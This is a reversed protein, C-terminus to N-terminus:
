FNQFCGLINDCMQFRWQTEHANVITIEELKANGSVCSDIFVLQKASARRAEPLRKKTSLQCM